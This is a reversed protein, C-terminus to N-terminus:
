TVETNGRGEGCDKQLGVCMEFTCQPNGVRDFLVLVKPWSRKTSTVAAFCLHYLPLKLILVDRFVLPQIDLISPRSFTSEKLIHWQIAM